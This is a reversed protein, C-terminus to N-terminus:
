SYLSNVMLLIDCVDETRDLCLPLDILALDREREGLGRGRAFDLGDTLFDSIELQHGGHM